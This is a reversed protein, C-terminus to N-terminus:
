VRSSSSPVCCEGGLALITVALLRHIVKFIWRRLTCWFMSHWTIKMHSCHFQRTIGHSLWTVTMHGVNCSTFLWMETFLTCHVWKLTPGVPPRLVGCVLQPSLYIIFHRFLALFTHYPTAPPPHGNKNATGTDSGLLSLGHWGDPASGPCLSLCLSLFTSTFSWFM